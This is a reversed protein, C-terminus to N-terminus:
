YKKITPNVLIHNTMLDFVEEHIIPAIACIECKNGVHSVIKRFPESFKEVLEECEDVVLKSINQFLEPHTEISHSLRAPSTLIIQITSGLNDKIEKYFYDGDHPDIYKIIQISLDKALSSVMKFVQELHGINPELIIIQKGTYKELNNLISVIISFTKGTGARSTIIMDKSELESKIIDIQIPTLGNFDNIYNRINSLLRDNIEIQIAEM